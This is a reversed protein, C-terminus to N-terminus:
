QCTEPTTLVAMAIRFIYNEYLPILAVLSRAVLKIKPKRTEIFESRDDLQRGKREASDLSSRRWIAQRERGASDLSSRREPRYKNASINQVDSTIYIFITACSKQNNRIFNMYFTVTSPVRSAVRSMNRKWAPNMFLSQNQFSDISHQSVARLSPCYLFYGCINPWHVYIKTRWCVM